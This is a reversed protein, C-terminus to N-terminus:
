FLVNGRAFRMNSQVYIIESCLEKPAIAAKELEANVAYEVTPAAHLATTSGQAHEKECTENSVANFSSELNRIAFRPDNQAHGAM